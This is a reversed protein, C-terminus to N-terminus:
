GNEPFIKASKKEKLIIKGMENKPLETFFYYKKPIKHSAINERLFETLKFFMSETISDSSAAACIVEGWKDSPEPFVVSEKIEPFSNIIEEIERPNVNEGGTVILDERRSEIYLYGNNDLHGFDGTLFGKSNDTKENKYYQKFLSKSFVKVEGNETIEIKCGPMAKGSSHPNSRFEGPKLLSIMSCTESSGYVKAVPWKSNIFQKLNASTSPGGGLFVAKLKSNPLAMENLIESFMTPVLSVFAPDFKRIGASIDKTSITDPIVLRAGTLFTRVIIMLGGIHYFPLSALLSDEPSIEITESTSKASNILNAYTHVVGKPKGKSGSTFIIVAENDPNLEGTEKPFNNSTLRTNILGLVPTEPKRAFKNGSIIIKCDAFNILELSEKETLRTNIPVPVAGAEWVALLAIVFAISNKEILVVKDGTNIGAKSIKSSFIGIRECLQKYTIEETSSRIIVNSKKYDSEKLIWKNLNKLKM